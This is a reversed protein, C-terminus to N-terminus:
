ATAYQKPGEKFIDGGHTDNAVVTPFDKVRLERLAETGLDDYAVVKASTIRRALVAGAGGVAILYVAKHKIM